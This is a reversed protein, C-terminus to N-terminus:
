FVQSDSLDVGDPFTKLSESLFFGAGKFFPKAFSPTVLGPDHRWVKTGIRGKLSSHPSHVTDRGEADVFIGLTQNRNRLSHRSVRDLACGMFSNASLTYNDNGANDWFFGMGNASGCGLSLNAATYTDNGKLDVFVGYSFDHGVGLGLEQSVRYIDDGGKDFLVGVGYHTASGQSYKGSFYTDNGEGTLLMALGYWYSFGQAFFGAEFSNSGGDDVLIAVGGSWSYGDIIDSRKGLSTGQAFSSNVRSDILSPFDLPSTYALYSDPEGGTDLLLSAGNTGAFSQLSRFGSYNDKGAADLVFGGGFFASAQCFSYCDYTDNGQLDWVVGLGFVGSGQSFSRARYTDNGQLDVLFSYGFYGSGQDPLLKKNKRDKYERMPTDKMDKRVLWHDNGSADIVVNIPRSYSSGSASIWQDDGGLDFAVLVPGTITNSEGYGNLVVQGLPTDLRFRFTEKGKREALAKRVDEVAVALDVAGASLYKMDVSDAFEMLVPEIGEGIGPSHNTSDLLLGQIKAISIKNKRFAKKHWNRSTLAVEILFASLQQIDSPINKLRAALGSPPKQGKAAFIKKIATSLAQKKQSHKRAPGVPDGVLDRRVGHGIRAMTYVILTSLDGKKDLMMNRTIQALSPLAKGNVMSSEFLPATYKKGGFNKIDSSFISIESGKYVRDNFVDEWGSSWSTIPFFLTFVLVRLM